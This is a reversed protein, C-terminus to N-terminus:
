AAIGKMLGIMRKLVAIQASKRDKAEKLSSSLSSDKLVGEAWSAFDNRSENVHHYFTHDDMQELAESLDKVSSICKGNAAYFCEQGEAELVVTKAM